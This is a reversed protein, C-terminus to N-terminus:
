KFNVSGMVAEMQTTDAENLRTYTIRYLKEELPILQETIVVKHGDVTGSYRISVAARNGLTIHECTELTFTVGLAESSADVLNQAYTETFDQAKLGAVEQLTIVINSTYNNQEPLYIQAIPEGDVAEEAVNVRWNRPCAITFDGCDVTVPTDSSACAVLLLCVAATLLALIRKKM